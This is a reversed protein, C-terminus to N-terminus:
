NEGVLPVFGVPLMDRRHINGKADKTLRVLRQGLRLEGVPIVLKGGPALQEILAPPISEGGATVIIADFPAHEPWGKRGDGQRVMVNAFGLRRLREAATKALDDIFEISYVQKAIQALVASQYGCGTGIELVRSEPTLDLLETMIAVVYPQSITQGHGIALPANVYAADRMAESVFEERPVARLAALVLSGLRRRGTWDATQRVEAEIEAILAEREDNFDIRRM